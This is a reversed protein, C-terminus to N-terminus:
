AQTKPKEIKRLVAEAKAKYKHALKLSQPCNKQEHNQLHYMMRGTFLILQQNEINM